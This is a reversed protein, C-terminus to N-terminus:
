KDDDDDDDEPASPTFVARGQKWAPYQQNRGKAQRWLIRNLKETPVADPLNWNMKTSAVADLREQGRLAKMEPNTEYISYKPEVASYPTYDPTSQFSNRMDTAILDFMSMTPLGLILEITKLMSNQSYFSSDIAGRKVYPGIAFAVTRHGDVHDLGAQADDEVVLILTSKWFPSHSFREVIQGLAWDNDAICAQPTSFGPVTGYTHDSPLQVMVLNPMKGASEWQKLHAFLINARVVDPVTLTWAPFDKALYQNLPAIPAVIQFRNSFNGGAKYEALLKIRDKTTETTGAFEGFDEFTKNGNLVNNWIFGSNAYALPDTGDYPYSRGGYGPWYTYDTESAQTVWQHGDGSNGGTAYFNDLLVFERALKRHNPAIDEGYIALSPDGNGKGLDGFMQDYSRNEKIIYVIHQIPSPDGARVPVPTPEPRSSRAAARTTEPASPPRLSNNRAVAATYDALHVADPIPIVHLTGRDSHVYRNRPNVTLGKGYVAAFRDPPMNKWGAGVGMLTSVALYRGTPSLAIDSPYWGTPILGEIKYRSQNATIVAVANIGACAAYLRKGDPSLVLAEPAIGAVHKEFPQVAITGVVRNANTDIVSITDSNSNAVYLRNRNEDWALSTPHLGVNIEAVVRGNPLDIRSVTGTSAIGRKDTVVDDAGPHVGTKATTDGARPFRGGWNSVFAITAAPNIAAGFPAIGTRIKKSAGTALDVVAAEDNFTLAVVALRHDATGGIAIGGAANAGLSDGLVKAAGDSGASLLRVVSRTKAGEKIRDIGSLLPEGRQPDFVLGQMGPAATTKILKEVKNSQWDLKFIAGSGKWTTSVFVEADSRGFTVGYVRSEFVSQLGAPTLTQETTVVGPDPVTRVPPVPNKLDGAQQGVESQYTQSLMAAPVVIAAILSIAIKM